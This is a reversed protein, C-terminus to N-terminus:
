ALKFESDLEEWELGVVAVLVVAEVEEDCETATDVIVMEVLVTETCCVGGDVGDVVGVVDLGDVAVVEDVM